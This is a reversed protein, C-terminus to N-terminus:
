IIATILLNIYVHIRHYNDSYHKTNTKLLLVAYSIRMLSQLESTHEESRITGRRQAVIDARDCRRYGRGQEDLLDPDFNGLRRARAEDDAVVQAGHDVLRRAVRVEEIRQAAVELAEHQRGARGAAIGSLAFM